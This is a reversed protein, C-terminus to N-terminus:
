TASEELQITYGIGEGGNCRRRRNEKQVIKLLEEYVFMADGSIEAARITVKVDDAREKSRVSKAM